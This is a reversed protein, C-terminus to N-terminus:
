LMWWLNHAEHRVPWSAEVTMQLWTLRQAFIGIRLRPRLNFGLWCSTGVWRQCWNISQTVCLRDILILITRHFLLLLTFDFDSRSGFQLFSALWLTHWRLGPHDGVVNLGLLGLTLTAESLNMGYWLVIFPPLTCTLTLCECLGAVLCTVFIVVLRVIAWSNEHCRKKLSWCNECRCSHSSPVLSM